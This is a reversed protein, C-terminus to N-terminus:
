AGAAPPPDKPEPRGLKRLLRALMEQEDAPLVAFDAVVARAHRPFVADVLRRGAPTLEVMMLRRNHAPRSRRVLGRRELNKVVLTLNGGSTLLKACLDRQSLPGLHALAELVAFQGTTLGDEKLHAHIRGSVAHAARMLKIYVDLARVEEPPGDHRTGM